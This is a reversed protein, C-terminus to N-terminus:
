GNSQEEKQEEKKKNLEARQLYYGLLYTEKLSQNLNQVEEEQFSGVIENILNKYYIRLGPKLKEFYPNTLRELTKWTQMPHNVYVSQLRIANTERTEEKDYTIREVKEYVALLRGFLYSRDQNKLDLNMYGAEGKTMKQNELCYKSIVACATSLVKERVLRSYAMPTSARNTLAQVFDFPMRQKEIMCKVLRQIQEKLLKDDVEMLGNRECGFACEVIRKFVPTEVEYRPKKQENFKLFYWKCTEGWDNIRDLFDSAKLQYYYTISLRGTTAAELSMIIVSDTEQFQGRYGNLTKKLKKRYNVETLAEEEDLEFKKIVQPIKKGEPNWCIFTRKGISVGKTKILWTLASHIKQSAEYSLSSAQHSDHFRGRYTFGNDDNASILKANYDSTIGKPHNRTIIGEQGTFYCIDTQTQNKLYYKALYYKTYSEILSSDLWTATNKAQSQEQYLIKFRVMVREYPQKGIKKNELIHDKAQIVGANVLDLILRKKILYSYIIRVSPHSYPSVAWEELKKIYSEFKEKTDKKEKENRSYDSFDGAVYSLTDSLAHPAPNAGRGASEETVPIMTVGKTEVPTAVQFEGAEDLIIELQVNVNMHAIPTLQIESQSKKGIENEYTRYLQSMWSM